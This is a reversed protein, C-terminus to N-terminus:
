VHRLAASVTAAVAEPAPVQLVLRSTPSADALRIDIVDTGARVDWLERGGAGGFWGAKILRPVVTGLRRHWWGSWLSAPRYVEVSRIQTLPIRVERRLSWVVDWGHFRVGLERDDVTVDIKPPRRAAAVLLALVVLAAGGIGLDLAREGAGGRASSIAAAALAAALVAPVAVLVGGPFRMRAAAPHHTGADRGARFGQHWRAVLWGSVVLLVLSPGADPGLHVDQDSALAVVPGAWLATFLTVIKVLAVVALPPGAPRRLVLLLGVATIAPLAVALDLWFVPYPTGGVGETEPAGGGLAVPLLVSFWLGAFV